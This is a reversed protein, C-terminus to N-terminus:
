QVKDTYKLPDNNLNFGVRFWGKGDSQTSATAVLLSGVVKKM